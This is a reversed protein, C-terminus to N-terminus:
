TPDIQLRSDDVMPEDPQQIPAVLWRKIYLLIWDSDTHKNLAKMLLSHDINDFAGKIDLELRM